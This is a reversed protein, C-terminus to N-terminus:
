VRIKGVVRDGLAVAQGDTRRGGAKGWRTRINVVPRAAAYARSCILFARLGTVYKTCWPLMQCRRIPHTRKAVFACLPVVVHLNLYAWSPGQDNSWDGDRDSKQEHKPDSRVVAIPQTDQRGHDHNRKSHPCRYRWQCGATRIDTSARWTPAAEPNFLATARVPPNTAVARMPETITALPGDSRAAKSPAAATPAASQKPAEKLANKSTERWDHLAPSREVAPKIDADARLRLAGSAVCITLSAPM